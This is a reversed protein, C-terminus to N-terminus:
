QERVTWSDVVNTIDGRNDDYCVKTCSILLAYVKTTAQDVLVTQDITILGTSTELDAVIRLGRFGGDRQLEEYELVQGLDNDLAGDVDVFFNRLAALSLGDSEDFSLQNVVAFGAPHRGVLRATHEISPRPAGDFAIQWGRAAEAERQTASLDDVADLIEDEDYLTWRDPVKFYTKDESSKVYQYGSGTCGALLVGTALLATIAAIRRRM